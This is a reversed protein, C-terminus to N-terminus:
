RSKLFLPCDKKDSAYYLLMELRTSEEPKLESAGLVPHNCVFDGRINKHSFHKCNSCQSGPIIKRVQSEKLLEQARSMIFDKIEQARSM